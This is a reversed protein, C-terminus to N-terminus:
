RPCVVPFHEVSPELFDEIFSFLASKELTNGGDGEPSKPLLLIATLCLSASMCLSAPTLSGHFSIQFNKYRQKQSNRLGLIREARETTTHELKGKM